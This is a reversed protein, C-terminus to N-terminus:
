WFMTSLRYGNQDPAAAVITRSYCCKDMEIDDTKILAGNMPTKM